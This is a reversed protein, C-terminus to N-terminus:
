PRAGQNGVGLALLEAAATRTPEFLPEREDAWSLVEACKFLRMIRGTSSELDAARRRYVQAAVEPVALSGAWLNAADLGRPARGWDEWDIIRLEPATMNAWNFDAHATTWESLVLSTCEPLVKQIVSEVRAQSIPELDPTAIRNTSHKALNDLATDFADWWSAPLASANASRAIPPAEILETEDARWMVGREADLWSVGAHWTPIPVGRLTAAAELGWGQSDLRELGRCEIRVWTNHDSRFGISRRKRILGDSGSANSALQLSAEVRALVDPVPVKRLDFKQAAPLESM